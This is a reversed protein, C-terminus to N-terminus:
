DVGKEFVELVAEPHACMVLAGYRGRSVVKAAEAMAVQDAAYNKYLLVRDQQHARLSAELAPLDAPDKLAVVALEYAEGQAAYSLFFGEVKEYDLDSLYAFLNAADEDSSSVSLMEPLDPEAAEMAKRLDYMSVMPKVPETSTEPETPQPKPGCGTLILVAALLLVSLRKMSKM